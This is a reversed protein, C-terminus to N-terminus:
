SARRPKHRVSREADTDPYEHRLETARDLGDVVRQVGADGAFTLELGAVPKDEDDFSIDQWGHDLHLLLEIKPIQSGVTQPVDRASGRGRLRQIAYLAVFGLGAIWAWPFQPTPISPDVPPAVPITPEIRPSAAASPPTSTPTSPPSSAGGSPDAAPLGGTSTSAPVVESSRGLSVRLNVRTDPPVRSGPPPEQVLILGAEISGEQRSVDGLQLSTRALAARANEETQHVLDPVTVLAPEISVVVGIPTGRRVRSGAPHSQEIVIGPSTRSEKRAIAGLQLQHNDLLRGAAAVDSKLLEPVETWPDGLSVRVSVATNPPVRSGPIPDQGIVTGADARDEERTLSGVQLRAKELLPGIAEIRESLLNPVTILPEGASVDLHVLSNRDARLGAAPSQGVVIGKAARASVMRIAGPQLAASRVEAVAADLHQGIVAPVIAPVIRPPGQSVVVSVRSWVKVVQEPQPDQSVVTGYPRRSEVWTVDGVRLLYKGLVLRAPDVLEGVVNPVRVISPPSPDSSVDGGTGRIGNSVQADVVTGRKVTTGAKPQQELLAGKPQDSDHEVIRGLRLGRRELVSSWIRPPVPRLDPVVTDGATTTARTKGNSILIDVATGTRVRSGADPQQGVITGAARDSDVITVRGLRLRSKALVTSSTQESTGKLDPVITDAQVLRAPLQAIQARDRIQAPPRAATAATASLTFVLFLVSTRM